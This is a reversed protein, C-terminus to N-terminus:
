HTACNAPAGTKIVGSENNAENAEAVRNGPDAFAKFPHPAADTMHNPNSKLYYVPIQVTKTGGPPISDPIIIGNGWNIGAHTDRVQILAFDTIAPSPAAGVNEITVQFTMVAHNPKCQGWKKLGFYKIKLDPKGEAKKCILKKTKSNNMENSEAVANNNDVVLKISHVGPTLNLNAAGPFWVWSVSAGPTKLKKSPDIGFLRIGGWPKAGKYMQIAAGKTKHYGSDPVGGSGANKITIKIKCDKILKIDSVILDPKGESKKCILKKSTKNNGENTEKVQETHDVTATITSSGKVQLTSTYTATGGSVQLAKGPDFKWITAGGWTNGDKYLYVGSSKPKHVTWVEDPVIGPGNNKVTVVVQCKENLSLDAITLDPLLVKIHKKLSPRHGVTKADRQAFSISAWLSVLFFSLTLFMSLLKTKKM